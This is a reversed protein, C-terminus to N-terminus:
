TSAEGGNTDWMGGNPPADDDADWDDPSVTIYTKIPQGGSTLDIEKPPPGDIHQYIFKAAALWDDSDKAAVVTGDPFRASGNIVFEWMLRALIRKSNRKKGDVDELTKSGAKALLDTLARNKPPRGKPNGSQGPKWPM